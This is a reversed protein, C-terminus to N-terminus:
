NLIEKIEEITYLKGKNDNECQTYGKIYAEIINKDTIENESAWKAAKKEIMSPKRRHYPTLDNYKDTREPM